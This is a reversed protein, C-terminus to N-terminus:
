KMVARACETKRPYLRIPDLRDISSSNWSRFHTIFGHSSWRQIHFGSNDLPLSPREPNPRHAHLRRTRILYQDPDDGDTNALGIRVAAILVIGHRERDDEAM